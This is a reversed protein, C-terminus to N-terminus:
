KEKIEAKRQNKKIYLKTNHMGFLVYFMTLTYSNSLTEIAHIAMQNFISKVTEKQLNLNQM